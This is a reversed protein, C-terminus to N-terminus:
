KMLITQINGYMGDTHLLIHYKTCHELRLTGSETSRDPPASATLSVEHEQPEIETALSYTSANLEDAQPSTPWRLNSADESTLSYLSFTQVPDEAQKSFSVLGRQVRLNRSTGNKKFCVYVRTPKTTVLIPLADPLVPYSLWHLSLLPEIRPV